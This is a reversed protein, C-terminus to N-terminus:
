GSTRWNHRLESQEIAQFNITAGGSNLTKVALPVGSKRCATIEINRTVPLGGFGRVDKDSRIARSEKL